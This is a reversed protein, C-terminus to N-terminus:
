LLGWETQFSKRAQRVVQYPTFTSIEEATSASARKLFLPFLFSVEWRPLGNLRRRCWGGCIYVRGYRARNASPHSSATSFWHFGCPWFWFALKLWIEVGATRMLITRLTRVLVGARRMLFMRLTGDAGDNWDCDAGRESMRMVM